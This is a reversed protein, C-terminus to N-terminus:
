EDKLSQNYGASEQVIKEVQEAVIWKVLSPLNADLWDKLLPKLISKVLDEVTQQGYPGEMSPEPSLIQKRVLKNLAGLSSAADQLVNESILPNRPTAEIEVQFDDEDEDGLTPQFHTNETEFTTETEPQAFEESDVENVTTDLTSTMVVEEVENNNETDESLDLPNGEEDVLETLELVDDQSEVPKSKFEVVNETHEQPAGDVDDESIIKRISALIEEMSPEDSSQTAPQNM